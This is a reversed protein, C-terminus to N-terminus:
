KRKFKYVFSDGSNGEGFGRGVVYLAQDHICYRYEGDMELVFHGNGRDEYSQTSAPLEDVQEMQCRCIEDGTCTGSEPGSLESCAEVDMGLRDPVCSLPISVDLGQTLTTAPLSVEEEDFTVSYGDSYAKTMDGEIGTCDLEDSGIRNKKCVTLLAWTGQLDGGCTDFADVVERCSMGAWPDSTGGAGASGSEGGSGGAGGEGGAGGAGASGGEGAGGGGIGATGGDGGVGGAGASGGGSGATGSQGGGGKEDGDTGSSCAGFALSVVGILVVLLAANKSM